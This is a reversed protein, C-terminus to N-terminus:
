GDQWTIQLGMEDAQAQMTHLVGVSPVCVLVDGSYVLPMNVRRWPPIGVEQLLYKLTRTPRLADPKFCEGGSRHTVRLKAIGHKLALGAGKVQDFFLRGGDPLYLVPEGSWVLDFPQSKKDVCLYARQQYRRLVLHQLQLSLKADQKAHLLQQMIEALFESSPMELGNQAFWWRLLNKARAISLRSLGLLCLSDAQILSEADQEALVELLNQSEALHSAARALVSQISPYRTQLVHMVEQRVFNREYQTDDNSEDECWQLDYQRAYDALQQRSVGLLPRLLRRTSDREAMCSLGKVGAGRFLQLLLTEAQDDQHHATIVFDFPQQNVKAEFLTEYRLQRAEAEVGRGTKKDVSVHVVQVPTKHEQCQAVCFDAWADANRSLGHHVHLAHLEFSQSHPSVALLHLLVRSDLGGSLALLLRQKPQCHRALFQDLQLQLNHTSM